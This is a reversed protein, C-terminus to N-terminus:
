NNFEPFEVDLGGDGTKKIILIIRDKPNAFETWNQNPGKEGNLDVTITCNKGNCMNDSNFELTAGTRPEDLKNPAIQKFTGDQNFYKLLTEPKYDNLKVGDISTNKVTQNVLLREIFNLDTKFQVGKSVQTLFDAPLTFAVDANAKLVVSLVLLTLLVKIKM